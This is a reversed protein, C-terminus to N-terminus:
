FPLGADEITAPKAITEHVIPINGVTAQRLESNNSFPKPVFNVSPFKFQTTRIKTGDDKTFVNTEIKGVVECVDGDNLYTNVFDAQKEWVTVKIDLSDYGEGKFKKESCSLLFSCLNKGNAQKFEKFKIHGIASLTPLSM